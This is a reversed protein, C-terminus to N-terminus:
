NLSSLMEKAHQPTWYLAESLLFLNLCDNLLWCAGWIVDLELGLYLGTSKNHVFCSWKSFYDKLIM